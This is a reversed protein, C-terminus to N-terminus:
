MCLTVALILGTVIELSSAVPLVGSTSGPPATSADTATPITTTSTKQPVTILVICSDGAEAPIAASAAAGATANCTYCLRKEQDPEITYQFTYVTDASVEERQKNAEKVLTAELAEAKLSKVDTTNCEGDASVGYFNVFSAAKLSQEKPNLVPAGAGCKFQLPVSVTANLVLKKSEESLNRPEGCVPVDTLESGAGSLKRLGASVNDLRPGRRGETCLVCSVSLAVVTIVLLAGRERRFGLFNM